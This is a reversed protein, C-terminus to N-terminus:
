KVYDVNLTPSGSVATFKLKAIVAGCFQLPTGPTVLQGVTPSASTGDVTYRVNATELGAAACRTGSPVTLQTNTGVALGYQSGVVVDFNWPPTEAALAPLIATAVLLGAILKKM